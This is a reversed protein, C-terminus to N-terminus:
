GSPAASEQLSGRRARAHAHAHAHADSVTVTLYHAPVGGGVGGGFLTGRVAWRKAEGLSVQEMM